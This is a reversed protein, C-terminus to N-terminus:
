LEMVFFISLDVKENEIKSKWGDINGIESLGTFSKRNGLIKTM